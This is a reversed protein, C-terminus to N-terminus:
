SQRLFELLRELKEAAARRVKAPDKGSWDYFGRGTKLGLDGRTFKDQVIAHPEAGHWLHPVIAAQALAHTDLGSMDKQEILGTICMRPGFLQKAFKDVDDATVIGEEILHYAEHLVAHQLRNILFGIVPKNLVISEKGTRALAEVAREIASDATRNVRIVEVLPFAEAPQFYHIGLFASPHGHAAALDELPLGSTNSAVLARTGYAEGMRRFLSTKLDIDEPVSEIILDPPEPPLDACATAGDPLPPLKDPNRSLVAAKFGAGAFSRLIGMGMVGSGAVLVTQITPVKNMAVGQPSAGPNDISAGATKM